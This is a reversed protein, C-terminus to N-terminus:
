GSAAWRKAEHKLLIGEILSKIVRKDEPDLHSAAEFQLRLDDDPGREGEDFVLEDTTVSLSLALNRLVDLTPQSTAGEYRRVQSVHLGIKDALQSQTLGRQKRIAALRQPFAMDALLTVVGERKGLSSM